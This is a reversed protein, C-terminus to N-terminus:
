SLCQNNTYTNLNLRKELKQKEWEIKGNPLLIGEQLDNTFNRGSCKYVKGDYSIISQNYKSTKCSYSKRNADIELVESDSSDTGDATVRNIFTISFLMMLAIIKKM